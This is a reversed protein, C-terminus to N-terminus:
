SGQNKQLILRAGFETMLKDDVDDAFRSIYDITGQLEIFDLGQIPRENVLCAQDQHVCFACNILNMNYELLARYFPLINNEPLFLVPSIVRITHVNKIQNILVYIGVSGRLAYWGIADTNKLRIQHPDLGIKRFLDEVMKIADKVTTEEVKKTGFFGM